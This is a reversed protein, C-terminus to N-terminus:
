MRIGCPAAWVKEFKWGLREWEPRIWTPCRERDLGIKAANGGIYQIVRYLHEEDRVIRDFSEEQWLPGKSGFHRDIKLGTHQKWSQLLRELPQVDCCLPRVLVHV